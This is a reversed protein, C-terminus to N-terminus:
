PKYCMMLAAGGDKYYKERRGSTAFGLKEYMKLAVINSVHVDLWFEHNSHNEILESLLNKMYGCRKFEAGTELYNIEIVDSTKGFLIIAVLQDSVSWGVWGTPTLLIHSRLENDSWLFEKVEASRLNLYSQILADRHSSKSDIYM